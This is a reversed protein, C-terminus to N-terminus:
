LDPGWLISGKAPLIVNAHLTGAADYDGEVQVRRAVVPVVSLQSQLANSADVQVVRSRAQITLLSGNIGIITGFIRHHSLPVAPVAVVPYPYVPQGIAAISLGFSLLIPFIFLRGIQM